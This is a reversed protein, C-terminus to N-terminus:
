VVGGYKISLLINKARQAGLPTKAAALPTEGDLMPHPRVMWSEAETAFVGAALNAIDEVVVLKKAPGFSGKLERVDCPIDTLREQDQVPLGKPAELDCSDQQFDQATLVPKVLADRMRGLIALPADEGESADWGITAPSTSYGVPRGDSDYHVEHIARYVDMTGSPDGLPTIREIVRYNWTGM